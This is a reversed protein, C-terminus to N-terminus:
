CRVVQQHIGLCDGLLPWSGVDKHGEVHHSTTNSLRKGLEPRNKQNQGAGQRQAVIAAARGRHTALGAQPTGGDSLLVLCKHAILM